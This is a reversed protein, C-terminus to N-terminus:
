IRKLSTKIIDNNLTNTTPYNTTTSIAPKYTNTYTSTSTTTTKKTTSSDKDWNLCSYM